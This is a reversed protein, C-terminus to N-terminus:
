HPVFGGRVALGRPPAPRAAGARQTPERGPLAARPGSCAGPSAPHPTVDRCQEQLQRNNIRLCKVLALAHKHPTQANLGHSESCTENFALKRGARRCM